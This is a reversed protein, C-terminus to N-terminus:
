PPQPPDALRRLSEGLLPKGEPRHWFKRMEEIAQEASWGRRQIRYVAVAYGTRDSGGACHVLTRRGSDCIALVQEVQRAPPPEQNSWRMVTVEIGMARAVPEFPQPGSLSVVHEIHHRHRLYRLFRVDPEGSRYLLGPEVVQFNYAPEQCGVTWALLKGFPPYPARLWRNRMGLYFGAFVVVLGLLICCVLVRAPKM